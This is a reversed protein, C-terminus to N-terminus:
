ATWIDGNGEGGAPRESIFYINKKDASICAGTEYYSSNAKGGLEEPDRFDGNEKEEFLIHRWRKGTSRYIFIISGDPSISTCADHGETNIDGFIPDADKWAGTISDAESYWVDQYYIGFNPDM